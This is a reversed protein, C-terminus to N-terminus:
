QRGNEVAWDFQQVIGHQEARPIFLLKTINQCLVDPAASLQEIIMQCVANLGTTWVLAIRYQYYHFPM